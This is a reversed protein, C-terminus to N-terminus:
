QGARDGQPAGATGRGGAVEVSTREVVAIGAERTSHGESLVAMLLLQGDAARVRGVSHVTWLGTADRPMWGNKLAAGRGAASVGWDQGPVVRGMLGAIYARSDADLVGDGGAGGEGFVARLLTLQDRATTRTRGWARDATTQTLGLRAHAADLGAAGGIVAWLASAADNDSRRIMAEAYALEAADPARGEDRARLLLAALIGVKVVSAAPFRGDGHRVYERGTCSSVAYSVNM